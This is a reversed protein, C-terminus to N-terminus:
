AQRQGGNREVAALGGALPQKRLLPGCCLFFLRRRRRNAMPYPSKSKAWPAIAGKHLTKEQDPVVMKADFALKMGLGDCVPCAIRKTIEEVRQEPTLPGSDKLAGFTLLGAVVVFLALWGPWRKWSSTRSM